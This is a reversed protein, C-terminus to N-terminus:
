QNSEPNNDAVVQRPAAGQSTGWLTRGCEDIRDDLRDLDARLSARREILRGLSRLIAERDPGTDEEGAPAAAAIESALSRIAVAEDPERAMRDAVRRLAYMISTHDRKGFLRGIQPLSMPTLERCLYIAVFRPWVVAQNRRASRMDSVRIQFHAAVRGQILRATPHDSM